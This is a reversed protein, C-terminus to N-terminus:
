SETLPTAPIPTLYYTTFDLDYGLYNDASEFREASTWAMGPIAILAAILDVLLGDLDDERDLLDQVPSVLSLTYNVALLGTIIQGKDDVARAVSKLSLWATPSDLVDPQQFGPYMTWGSPLLPTLVDLCAQRM